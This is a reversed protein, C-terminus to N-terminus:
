RAGEPVAVGAESVAGAAGHSSSPWVLRSSPRVMVRSPPSESTSPVQCFAESRWRTSGVVNAMVIVACWTSLVTKANYKPPPSAVTALVKPTVEATPVVSRANYTRMM